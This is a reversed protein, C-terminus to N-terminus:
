LLSVLCLWCGAPTCLWQQGERLGAPREWGCCPATLLAPAAGQTGAAMGTGPSRLMSLPWGWRLGGGAGGSSASARSLLGALEAQKEGCSIASATGPIDQRRSSYAGLLLFKWGLKVNRARYADWTGTGDALVPVGLVEEWQKVQMPPMEEGQVAGVQRAAMGRWLSANALM